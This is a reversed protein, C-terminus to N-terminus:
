FLLFSICKVCIKWLKRLFWVSAKVLSVGYTETESSVFQFLVLFVAFSGAVYEFERSAVIM